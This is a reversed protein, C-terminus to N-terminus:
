QGLTVSVSGGGEVVIGSYEKVPDSLVRITYTGPLVSVAEGGAVGTAAVTGDAAVVEFSPLLARAVAPALEDPKTADFYGGGGATAWETFTEKLAADDVAFGVISVRVDLGAEKLKGIEALPDGDCTEEGDTILIILKQGGGGLDNAAEALSAGIATKAKNVSKIADVAAKAKARDLPALPVRLNTECSDPKTDGFVRMAFPTGEPLMVQTLQTLTDKAIEIRRKKGLKKLMSGSADLIVLVGRDKPATAQVPADEPAIVSVMGPEPPKFSVAATIAYDKPARLAASTRTFALELDTTTGAYRASGGSASALLEMLSREFGAQDAGSDSPIAFAFVRAGTKRLLDLMENRQGYGGGTQYDTILIIARTGPRDELQQAGGLAGGEANSSSDAWNYGNLAGFATLPDGTWDKLIPRAYPDDFALLQVEDRGPTLYRVFSRISQIITPVYPGVSGSTDWVVAISRPPEEVFAYYRGPSVKATAVLSQGSESATNLPVATGAADELRVAVGLNPRGDLTLTLSQGEEPVDISWVEGAGASARGPKATDLPLPRANAKSTGGTLETVDPPPAPPNLAEWPGQRGLDGWEGLITGGTADAPQEIIRIQKPERRYLTPGNEEYPPLVVNFKVFRAWTGPAFTFPAPTGSSRDLTWTGAKTWPGNPEMATEIEVTDIAQVPDLDAVDEWEIRNLRAARQNRFSIVWDLQRVADRSFVISYATDDADLVQRPERNEGHWWAVYGGFNPDAINLGGGTLAPTAEPVAIAKFEGTSPAGNAPKLTTMPRYRLHTAEVPQPLVFAYEGQRAGTEGAYVETFTTGDTSAEVTFRRVQAAIDTGITSNVIFGALKIPADGPLDITVVYTPDDSFQVDESTGGTAYGDILENYGEGVTAGLSSWAVDLGGLLAAPLKPEFTPDAPPAEATVAITTEATGAGARASLIVDSGPILDPPAILTIDATGTIKAPPNEIRWRDDSLHLELPLDGTAGTVKLTAKLRQSRPDFAKVVKVGTEVALTAAVPAAPTPGASFSIKLDYPGPTYSAIRLARNTGPELALTFTKKEDESKMTDLTDLERTVPGSPSRTYTEQVVRLDADKPLATVTVTLTAPATLDPLRFVDDEDSKSLMGTLHFDAPLEGMTWATDNPEIDAGAEFWPVRDLKIEYPKQDRKDARVSVFWDGQGLLFVNSAEGKDANLRGAEWYGARNILARLGTDVPGSLTLRVKTPGALTFRYTDTDESQEHQGARSGGLPLLLARDLGDNPEVEDVEGPKRPAAAGGLVDLPAPGIPTATVSWAGAPGSVRFSNRGPPLLVNWMEAIGTEKDRFARTIEEGSAGRLNLADFADGKATIKWLQLPGTVDFAFHETDNDSLKMGSMGDAVPGVTEKDQRDNPEREEGPKWDAKREFSLTLPVSTVDDEANAYIKFIHRGAGLVFDNFRQDPDRTYIQELTDGTENSLAFQVNAGSVNKLSADFRLNADSAPVDLAFYYTRPNGNADKELNLELPTGLTVSQAREPVDNIQAADQSRPAAVTLAAALFFIAARTARM